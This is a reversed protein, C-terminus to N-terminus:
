SKFRSQAEEFTMAERMTRPFAPPMAGVVERLEQLFRFYVREGIKVKMQPSPAIKDAQQLVQLAYELRDFMVSIFALKHLMLYLADPDAVEPTLRDWRRLFLAEGSLLFGRGRAGTRERFPSYEEHFDLGVFYFGASELFSQVEHFLPQNEYIPVFEVEVLLGLVHDQLAQRAGTLIRFESGQTDLSLFDPAVDALEQRRLLGDLSHMKVKRREMPAVSEKLVYDVKGPEHYTYFEGYDANFPYLSSTYADFNLFLTQTGEAEAVCFPFVRTECKSHKEWALRTQEISDEDADFLINVIDGSFAPLMRFGIGVDRSGVHFSGLKTSVKRPGQQQEHAPEPARKSVPARNLVPLLRHIFARLTRWSFFTTLRSVTNM